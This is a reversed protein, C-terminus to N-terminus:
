AQAVTEGYCGRDSAASPTAGAAGAPERGRTADRGEAREGSRGRPGAVSEVEVKEGHSLTAYHHRQDRRGAAAGPASSPSLLRRRRRGTVLSSSESFGSPVSCRRSVGGVGVREVGVIAAGVAAGGIDDRNAIVATVARRGDGDRRSAAGGRGRVDGHDGVNGRRRRRRRARGDGPGATQTQPGDDFRHVDSGGRSPPRENAPKAKTRRPVRQHPVQLRTM